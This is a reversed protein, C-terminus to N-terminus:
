SRESSFYDEIADVFNAIKAQEPQIDVEYGNEEVQGSTVPGMSAIACGDPISLGLDLFCEVTLASTFTILDAGEEKLRAQGGTLDETEPVTKYAIGIDLIAEKEKFYDQIVERTQEGKMWLVQLSSVDIGEDDFAQCLGEAVYNEKPMLDVAFRYKNVMKETGPGVVAIRAGGLSRADPYITYFAEFFEEVANPSTFILWDYKHSDAVLHYFEEKDPAPEIKITPLEIVDAGLNRLALVLSSSQKRTRTVVARKGFLPRNEFWNVEDRFQIVDGFVAVCPAKFNQKKAEEALTSTTAILTRQQGTTAWRVLAAPEDPRMGAKLMEETIQPLRSVGMLMVKTGKAQAIQQYDLSSEEKTPDEHGTFITLQTNTARHTVPIGAYAPGAITSSIGPVIEFAVGAARLEQAEEGGRGFIFPDGGKLRAVVLGQSTKEVILENIQDQTLTHDGAKKGVYIKDADPRAWTLMVPNCLYDYVLIDAMEVCERGRLTMLGIDGPGAGILYCIGKHSSAM